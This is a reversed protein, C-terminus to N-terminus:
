HSTWKRWTKWEDSLTPMIPCLAFLCVNDSQTYGLFFVGICKLQMSSSFLCNFCYSRSLHMTNCRDRRYCDNIGSFPDLIFVGSPSMQKKCGFQIGACQGFISRSQVPAVASSRQISRRVFGKGGRRRAKGIRGNWCLGEPM